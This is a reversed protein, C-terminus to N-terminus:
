ACSARGAKLWRHPVQLVDGCLKSPHRIKSSTNLIYQPHIPHPTFLTFSKIWLQIWWFNVSLVTRVFHSQQIQWRIEVGGREQRRDEKARVSRSWRGLQEEEGKERLLKTTYKKRRYVGITDKRGDKIVDKRRARAGDYSRRREMRREWREKEEVLRKWAMMNIGWRSELKIGWGVEGGITIM